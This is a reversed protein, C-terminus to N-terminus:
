RAPAPSWPQQSVGSTFSAAGSATSFSGPNLTAQSVFVSRDVGGAAHPAPELLAPM